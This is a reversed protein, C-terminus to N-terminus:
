SNLTAAASVKANLCAHFRVAWKQTTRPKTLSTAIPERFAEGDGGPTVHHDDAQWRHIGADPHSQHRSKRCDHGAQGIRGLAGHHLMGRPCRRYARGSQNRCRIRFSHQFSYQTNSLVGSQSSITGKGDKLGGSWHASATRQM